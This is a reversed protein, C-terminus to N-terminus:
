EMQLYMSLGAVFMVMVVAFIIKEKLRSRRQGEASLSNLDKFCLIAVLAVLFGFAGTAKWLWTNRHKRKAIAGIISGCFMVMLIFILFSFFSELSDLSEVKDM